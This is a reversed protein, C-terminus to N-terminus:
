KASGCRSSNAEPSSSNTDSRGSTAIWSTVSVDANGPAEYVGTLSPLRGKSSGRRGRLRRSAPTASQVLLLLEAECVGWRVILHVFQTVELDGRERREYTERVLDVNPTPM